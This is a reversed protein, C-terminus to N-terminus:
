VASRGTIYPKLRYPVALDERRILLEKGTRREYATHTLGFQHKRCENYLRRIQPADDYSLVWQFPHEWVQLYEAVKAHDDHEYANLYLKTGKEYYPPDLYVFVSNKDCEPYIVTDLFEIADLNSIEIRDRYRAIKEIRDTMTKRYYAPMSRGNGPKNSVVLQDVTWLFVQGTCRNLFFTAFGVKLQSHRNPHLYIQRQNGWEDLTVPTNEILDLFQGTRGLISRWFCFICYDLDNVLIKSVYEGFLLRLAAGAGGAYPEAYVSDQMSNLEIIQGLM